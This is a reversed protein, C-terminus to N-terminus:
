AGSLIRRRDRTCDSSTSLKSKKACASVLSTAGNSDHALLARVVALPNSMISSHTETERVQTSWPSAKRKPFLQVVAKAAIEGVREGKTSSPGHSLFLALRINGAVTRLRESDVHTYAKLYRLAIKRCLSSARSASDVLNPINWCLYTFRWPSIAGSVTGNVRSAHHTLDRIDDIADVAGSCRPLRGTEIASGLRCRGYAEQLVDGRCVKDWRFLLFLFHSLAAFAEDFIGNGRIPWM